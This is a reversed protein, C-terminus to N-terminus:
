NSVDVIKIFYLVTSLPPIKNVDGAIGHALYHPLIVLASDGKNLYTVVEHLGSEVLSRNVRFKALGFEDSHYCRTMLPDMLRVDYNLTVLDGVKPKYDSGEDNIVIYRLGTKSIQTEWGQRLCYQQIRFSEDKIWYKNLQISKEKDIEGITNNVTKHNDQENCSLFFIYLLVLCFSKM